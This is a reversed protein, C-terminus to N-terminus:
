CLDDMTIGGTWELGQALTFQKDAGEFTFFSGMSTHLYYGDVFTIKALGFPKIPSSVSSLVYIETNKVAAFKIIKAEGYQNVSFISDVSLNKMYNGIPDDTIENPCCVFNTPTEWNSQMALPTESDVIFLKKMLFSPIGTIKEQSQANNETENRIPSFIWEGMKSTPRNSPMKRREGIKKLNELCTKSEEETVRRMWDFNSGKLFDRYKSPNSLFEYIDVGTLYEIKKRTFENLVTNEFRTVWRLNSPRNNQKNTDIHDVVYEETPPDGHFATSVIRHVRVTAIELYGTNVNLKGFTWENDHKRIRKQERAKRFVAGNDRVLYEEGKYICAREERYDNINVM